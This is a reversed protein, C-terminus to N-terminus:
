AAALWSPWVRLYLKSPMRVEAQAVDEKLLQAQMQAQQSAEELQQAAAQAARSQKGAAAAQQRWVQALVPMHTGDSESGEAEQQQETGAVDGHGSRAEWGPSRSQLSQLAETNVASDSVSTHESAAQKFSSGANSPARRRSSISLVLLAATSTLTEPPLLIADSVQAPAATAEQASVLATDLARVEVQM